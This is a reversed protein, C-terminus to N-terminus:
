NAFYCLDFDFMSKAIWVVLAGLESLVAFVFFVDQLFLPIINLLHCSTTSGRAVPEVLQRAAGHSSKSFHNLKTYM